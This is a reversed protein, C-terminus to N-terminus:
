CHKYKAYRGDAGSVRVGHAGHQQVVFINVKGPLPLRHPCPHEGHACIQPQLAADTYAIISDIGRHAAAFPAASHSPKSPPLQWCEAQRQVALDRTTAALVAGM